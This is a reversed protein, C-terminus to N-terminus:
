KTKELHKILKEIYWVAKRLSEVGGKIKWRWVYKIVNATCVAEIGILDSTASEIADICEIKGKKYHKPSNVAEIV